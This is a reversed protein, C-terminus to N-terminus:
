LISHVHHHTKTTIHHGGRYFIFNTFFLDNKDIKDLKQMRWFGSCGRRGRSGKKVEAGFTTHNSTIYSTIKSGLIFRISHHSPSSLHHHTTNKSKQLHFFFTCFFLAFHLKSFFIFIFTAILIIENKNENKSNPQFLNFFHRTKIEGFKICWITEIHPSLNNNMMDEQISIPHNPNPWPTPNFQPWKFKIMKKGRWIDKRKSKTCEKWKLLPELIIHNWINNNNPNKKQGNKIM